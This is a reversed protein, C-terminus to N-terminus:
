SEAPIRDVEGRSRRTMKPIKGRDPERFDLYAQHRRLEQGPTEPGNRAFQGTQWLQREYKGLNQVVFPRVGEVNLLRKRTTHVAFRGLDCAIWRRALKEAVVATTGSGVFCDLVLDGVNSSAKIIRELLTEPKQTPYGVREVSQASIPPIDTWFDSLAVGDLGDVYHKLRPTGDEKQPWYIMGQKDLEDLRAQVTSSAISLTALLHGPLAWHRGVKTPDIGRWPKGSDGYRIGAGTLSIPQFRRGTKSDTQSFHREIYEPDHPVRLDTWIPAKGKAYFLLLDHVPGYRYSSGHAFTRKWSIENLFREAGFVEDLVAKVYHSVHYDLHVYMSGNEALLECLLVVTEYFWQLYSNLGRGWTDRYAKQEIISPQKTFAVPDADADEDDPEPVAANFSFNAGTDFPPDIYILNVKGGLEDLLSPLVYKKDGWILRNRWPRADAPTRFLTRREPTAENITEVTQFPLRVKLPVVRNDQADYKGDWILETKSSRPM